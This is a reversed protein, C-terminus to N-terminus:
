FPCKMKFYVLTMQLKPLFHNFDALAFKPKTPCTKLNIEQQPPASGEHNNRVAIDNNMPFIAIATFYIEPVM